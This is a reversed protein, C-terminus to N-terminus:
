VQFRQECSALGTIGFGAQDALRGSFRGGFHDRIDQGAESFTSIASGQSGLWESRLRRAAVKILSRWIGLYHYKRRRGVTTLLFCEMAHHESALPNPM